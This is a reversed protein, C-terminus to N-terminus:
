KLLLISSGGLKRRSEGRGAEKRRSMLIGKGDLTLTNNSTIISTLRNGSAVIKQKRAQSESNQIHQVYATNRNYDRNQLNGGLAPVSPM